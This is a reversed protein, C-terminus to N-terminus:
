RLYDDIFQERPKYVQEEWLKQYAPQELHHTRYPVSLINKPGNNGNIAAFISTPPCIRDILGIEVFLEADSRSLLQAVDLYPLTRTKGTEDGTMTMPQPWGSETDPIAAGWDCMAPVIAVVASVREDLGAAALAQGGGQSEGITLIRKGDWLSDGTVYDIARLLRLYMGKFYNNELDDVGKQYYDKLLGEELAEYYAEPQENLMGHANMDFAIAGNGRKALDLAISSKSRCWDGKVGAAHFNIVIPLSGNTRGKPRAIYGRVSETGTCESRVLM